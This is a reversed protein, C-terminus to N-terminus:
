RPGRGLRDARGRGRGGGNPWMPSATRSAHRRSRKPAAEAVVLVRQADDVHELAVARAQVQAVVDAVPDEAVRAARRQRPRELAPDHPEDVADGVDVVVDVVRQAGAHQALVLQRALRDRDSAVGARLADVREHVVEDLV